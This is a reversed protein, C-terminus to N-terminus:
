LSCGLRQTQNILIKHWNFCSGGTSSQPLQQSIGGGDASHEFRRSWWPSTRLHPGRLQRVLVAKRGCYPVPLWPQVFQDLFRGSRDSPKSAIITPGEASIM